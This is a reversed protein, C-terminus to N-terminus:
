HHHLGGVELLEIVEGPEAGQVSRPEPCDMDLSSHTGYDHHYRFYSRLVRRVHDEHRVIAHDCASGDISGILREV